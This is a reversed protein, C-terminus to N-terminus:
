CLWFRILAVDYIMLMTGKMNMSCSFLKRPCGKSDVQAIYLYLGMGRGISLLSRM